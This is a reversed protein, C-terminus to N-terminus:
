VNTWKKLWKKIKTVKYIPRYLRDIKNYFLLISIFYKLFFGQSVNQSLDKFLVHGM